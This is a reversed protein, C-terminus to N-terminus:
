EDVWLSRLAVSMDTDISVKREPQDIFHYSVFKLGDKDTRSYFYCANNTSQPSPGIQVLPLLKLARGSGKKSIYLHEVDLWTAMPRTEKLFESNSGMLISVENEFLGRRPVCHRAQILQMETWTEAMAERLRLLEGYLQENRLQAIEQGVVGGHGSWDNRMKNTVSLISALEVRCLAEPLTKSSDSFIEECLERNEPSGSLLLRTQKGFYEVVLKWTGFTAWQFSLNNKRMSEALKHKHPDFIVQNSSFASLLILSLFEATGEFFHLLHEYKTKYDQSPTAQWARLISALPFPLREFWQDLGAVVHQKLSVSLRSSLVSLSQDAKGVSRPNTWLERHIEGLENQLGLLTNEEVAIRAEVDLMAKQTQLDPVFIRLKKLSQKSLKPIVTGSKHSRRIEKGLESNLFQAVFRANSRAPDIAVQVYNQPKLTIDDLSDVVDSIGILPIFIANEHKPFQFDDGFRGLNIATSVVELPVPPAMFQREAQEFREQERIVNLGRFSLPDVFRGLDLSAGEESNKLNSLIQLNTNSDISLQAVFMKSVPRKRIVALYSPTNTHPAFTGSPLALAADLGLGLESLKRYISRPSFFFSPTVVFLGVGDASLRMSATVLIQSGLDDRIDVDHGAPTSVSIPHNARANMPLISAMFDIESKLSGLLDIPEGVQWEANEVLAKGLAVNSHNPEFAIVTKAKTAERMVGILLGIGAWPDCLSDAARGQALTSFVAALWDPVLFLSGHQGLNGALFKGLAPLESPSFNIGEKQLVAALEEANRFEHGRLQDLKQLATTNM